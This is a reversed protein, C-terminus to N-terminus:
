VGEGLVRGCVETGATQQLRLNLQLQLVFAHLRAFAVM